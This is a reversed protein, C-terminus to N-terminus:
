HSRAAHRASHDHPNPTGIGLVRSGHHTYAHDM